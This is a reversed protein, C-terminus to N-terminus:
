HFPRIKAPKELQIGNCPLQDTTVGQVRHLHCHHNLGSTNQYTTDSRSLLLPSPDNIIENKSKLHNHKVPALPDVQRETIQIVRTLGEQPTYEVISQKRDSASVISASGTLTDKHKDAIILNLCSATEQDIQKLKEESSKGEVRSLAQNHQLILSNEPIIQKDM